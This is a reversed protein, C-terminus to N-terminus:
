KSCDRSELLNSQRLLREPLCGSGEPVVGIFWTEYFSTSDISVFTTLIRSL